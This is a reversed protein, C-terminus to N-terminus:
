PGSTMVEEVATIDWSTVKCDGDRVGLKGTKKGLEGVVCFFDSNKM